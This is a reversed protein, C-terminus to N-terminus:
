YGYGNREQERENDLTVQAEEMFPIILDIGDFTFNEDDTRLKEGLEDASMDIGIIDSMEGLLIKLLEEPLTEIQTLKYDTTQNGENNLDYTIKCVLMYGNHDWGNDRHNDVPEIKIHLSQVDGEGESERLLEERIIRRLAGLAIRINKGEHQTAKSKDKDELDKLLSEATKASSSSKWKNIVAQAPLKKIIRLILERFEEPNGFQGGERGEDFMHWIEKLPYSYIPHSLDADEVMYYFAAMMLDVATSRAPVLEMDQSSNLGKSFDLGRGDDIVNAHPTQKLEEAFNYGITDEIMSYLDSEPLNQAVHKSYFPGAKQKLKKQIGVPGSGFAGRVKNWLDGENLTEERIIRRLTGLTIRM